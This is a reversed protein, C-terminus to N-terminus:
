ARRRRLALLAIGAGFLVLAPPLPVPRLSPVSAFGDNVLATV